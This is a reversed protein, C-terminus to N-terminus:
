PSQLSPRRVVEERGKRQQGLHCNVSYELRPKANVFESESASRSSTCFFNRPLFPNIVRSLVRWREASSRGFAPAFILWTRSRAASASSCPFCCQLRLQVLAQHPLTSTVIGPRGCSRRTADPSQVSIPQISQKCTETVRYCCTRLDLIVPVVKLRQIDWRM